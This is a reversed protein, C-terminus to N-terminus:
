VFSQEVIQAALIRLEAKVGCDLRGVHRGGTTWVVEGVRGEVRPLLPLTRGCSWHTDGALLTGRDGVRYRILPMDTNMLGTCVLDGVMGNPVSCDGEVVEILGVEPWQHRGGAECESAATVMEAM